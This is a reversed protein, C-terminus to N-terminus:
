RALERRIDVVRLIATVLLLVLVVLLIAMAAAQPYYLQDINNKMASVVSASQGGSMVNVVFFDGMVLTVVFISGLAIGTKCLPVILNTLIMWKSAGADRAAEIINPNIKSMSNFIPVIMFLTFLYVYALVVSFDSYLLVSLPHSILGLRMLISNFIGERGLFPIWSVMRIVDSTWFPITCVLLLGIQLKLNRVYFVLFYSCTFGIITTIILTILAFKITKIFLALTVPSNLVSAYNSWTFERYITIGDTQWFSLLVVIVLPIGVLTFMLLAMPAVQLYSSFRGGASNSRSSM